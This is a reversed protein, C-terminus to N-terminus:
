SLLFVYWYKETVQFLDLVFTVFTWKSVAKIRTGLPFKNSNDRTIESQRVEALTGFDTGSQSGKHINIIAMLVKRRFKEKLNAM